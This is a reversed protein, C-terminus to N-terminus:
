SYLNEMCLLNSLSLALLGEDLGAEFLNGFKHMQTSWAVSVVLTVSATIRGIVVLAGDSLSPRYPRPRVTM